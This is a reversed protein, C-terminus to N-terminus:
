GEMDSTGDDVKEKDRFEKGLRLVEAFEPEDRFSGAIRDLWDGNECFEEVQQALMSVRVELANLREEVTSM